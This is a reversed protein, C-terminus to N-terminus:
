PVGGDAGPCLHYSGDGCSWAGACASSDAPSGSYVCAVAFRTIPVQNYGSAIMRNVLACRGNRGSTCDQDSRCAQPMCRTNGYGGGSISCDPIGILSAPTCVTGAACDNASTCAM